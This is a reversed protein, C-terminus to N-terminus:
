RDRTAANLSAEVGDIMSELTFQELIRKRGAVGMAQRRKSDIELEMLLSTWAKPNHLPVLFGARGHDLLLPVDGAPSAAVPVGCAMAEM